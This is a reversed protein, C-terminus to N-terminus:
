SAGLKKVEIRKAEAAVSIEFHDAQVVDLISTPRFVAANHGGAFRVSHYLLGTEGKKRLDEGFAQSATYDDPAYLDPLASQRGRIDVYKGDLRASYARYTRSLNPIRRAVAERRLHHGVEAAATRIDACAYWVGLDRSNFRAGTLPAHLFAAMIVSSNARGFVWETHPLRALREAVLRDNTWGALEMVAGLDAAAVVTDFLGIPPFRSPILRYSPHFAPSLVYSM